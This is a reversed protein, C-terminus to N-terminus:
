NVKEKDLFEQQLDFTNGNVAHDKLIAIRMNALM